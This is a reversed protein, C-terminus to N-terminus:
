MLAVCLPVRWSTWADGASYGSRRSSRATIRCSGLDIPDGKRHNGTESDAAVVANEAARKAQRQEGHQRDPQDTQRDLEGRGVRGVSGNGGGSGRTFAERALRRGAPTVRGLTTPIAAAAVGVRFFKAPGGLVTDRGGRKEDTAGGFRRCGWLAAGMLGCRGLREGGVGRPRRCTLGRGPVPGPFIVDIGIVGVHGRARM